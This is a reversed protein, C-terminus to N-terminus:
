DGDAPNVLSSAKLPYADPHRGLRVVLFLLALCVVVHVMYAILRASALGLAGWRLLAPTTGLFVAAWVLNSALALWMRGSAEIVQGTPMDLALVAITLLVVVLTPWYGKFSAGYSGMIIPSALSGIVVFPLSLLANVKLSLLFLKVSNHQDGAGLRESFLPLAVNGFLQPLSLLASFWQNAANFAGMEGYGNPRRVLMTAAVWGVASILVTALVSPVSFNWFVRFEQTCSYYSIHINCRRAAERLALFNFLCAGAQAVVLGGIVGPLGFLAAGGVVLPFNLMGTFFGIRAVAKFSEFGLLVGNQAGNVGAFVLLPAGLQLYPTLHPAALTVRCLFPAFYLFVITLVGGVSWSVVSSLAIIRGARSPDKSRLEAVYKAATTGMGFGAFMGFMGVTSQIIGLEGYQVRGLLRAALIAAALGFLRSLTSGCLLWFAGGFLRGRLASSGILRDWLQKLPRPALEHLRDQLAILRSLVVDGYRTM